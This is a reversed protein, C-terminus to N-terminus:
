RDKDPLNRVYAELWGAWEQALDDHPPNSFEALERLLAARDARGTIAYHHLAGSFPDDREDALARALTRAGWEPVIGNDEQAEGIADYIVDCLADDQEIMGTMDIIGKEFQELEPGIPEDDRSRRPPLEM